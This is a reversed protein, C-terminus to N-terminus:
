DVFADNLPNDKKLTEFAAGEDGLNEMFNELGENKSIFQVSAVHELAQIKDTLIKKETSTSDQLYAHIEVNQEVKTTMYNLNLLILFTVGIMLLMFSLSSISAVTIWGNRKFNNTGEKIHRKLYSNKNM